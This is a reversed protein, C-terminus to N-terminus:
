PTSQPLSEGSHKLSGWLFTPFLKMFCPRGLRLLRRDRSGRFRVSYSVKKPLIESWPIQAAM